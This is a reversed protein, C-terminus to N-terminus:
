TRFWPWPAKPHHAPQRRSERGRVAEPAGPAEGGWSPGPTSSSGESGGLPRSLSPWGCPPALRRWNSVSVQLLDTGDTRPQHSGWLVSGRSVSGGEM